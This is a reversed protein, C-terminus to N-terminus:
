GAPWSGKEARRLGEQFLVSLWFIPYIARYLDIRRPLLPDLPVQVALYPELFPQWESPALVDEQNPHSLLDMVERAPDRLGSDEWDVLGVRGDPRRIVNAFRADSRCFCRRPDRQDLDHLEAVIPRRRELVDLCLDAARRGELYATDTRAAYQRFSEWFSAYAEAVSRADTFWGSVQEEPIAQVKLWADSLAALDAASPKRRDWMEGELYEYVVLPGGEPGHDPEIGVPQPVVDLPALLELARHEHFPATALEDPKLYEKVILHQGDTWAEYLRNSQHELPPRLAIRIAAPPCGTLRAMIEILGEHM